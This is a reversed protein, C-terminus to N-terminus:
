PFSEGSEFKKLRTLNEAREAFRRAKVFQEKAESNVNDKFLLEGSRFSQEAKAWHGPAFNQAGAEKAAEIAERAFTYELNPRPGACGTFSLACVFLVFLKIHNFM